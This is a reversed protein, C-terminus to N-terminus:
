NKIDNVSAIMTSPQHGIVLRGTLFQIIKKWDSLSIIEEHVLTNQALLGSGVVNVVDLVVFLVVFTFSM